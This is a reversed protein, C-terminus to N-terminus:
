IENKIEKDVEDVQSSQKGHNSSYIYQSFKKEDKKIQNYCRKLVFSASLLITLDRTYIMFKSVDDFAIGLGYGLPIGIFTMFIFSVITPYLLDKWGRLAGAGIIRSEAVLALMNMWLLDEALNRTTEDAQESLFIKTLPRRALYFIGAILSNIMVGFLNSRVITTINDKHKKTVLASDNKEIAKEITGLNKSIIMGSSQAIGQETTGFLILYLLSPNLAKLYHNSNIGFLTTILFLNGWETLRQLSLRWGSNLLSSVKKSFADINLKDFHYKKYNKRLFLMGVWFATIFSGITGGLGIGLAELEAQYALFYSSIASLIFVSFMSAPAVYWEGEQFTIQPAVILFLLPISAASYGAFFDSAMKASQKEFLLPFLVKTILMAGASLIGLGFSLVVATKGIDGATKHNKKGLASGFDLGTGLLLGVGSGIIVSQYTSMLSSAGEGESGLSALLKGNTVLHLAFFFGNLGFTTTKVITSDKWKSKESVSNLLLQDTENVKIQNDKM